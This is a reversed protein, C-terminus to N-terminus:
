RWLRATLFGVGFVCLLIAAVVVEEPGRKSQVVGNHNNM